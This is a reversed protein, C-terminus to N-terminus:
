KKKKGRHKLAKPPGSRKKAPHPFAASKTIKTKPRTQTEPETVLALDIENRTVDVKLISVRVPDAMRFSRKNRRGVLRYHKEDHIYYDDDITSVRVLGEVGMNKLRVFFGFPMVGSIVGDYEQGVHKAMFAVQKIKIAQREAAEAVRETDSTQKSVSDIISGVKKALPGPYPGRRLHRTLRHVLLDAYRRIPSTFHTYHLFALGFHGINDRQYVAKKMSRLMLENIFESEPSDAISELFRAFQVPRMTPSVPFSKGLREMTESFTQLTELSPKDHVRYIFPMAMRFAQIAVARNAALMFEEILRHSELRVKNVLDLVEGNENLIIKSEPLDFDLSGESFRRKSLLTALQRALFLNDAVEETIETVEKTNDFFDQVQEYSLKAKSQIVTDAMKWTLLKGKTDFDLFISHALRKRNPKLSCVDNSLAEPLMPVVLGPLYVSNGRLMAEKDLASGEEVFYAVDAIHVGLRFGGDIKIVSVADDHDKADFPDITYICENTLDLRDAMSVDSLKASAQEAEAIVDAPFQEPLGFSKIVTLMDVGPANPLGLIEVIKGEPNLYPDDWATLVAVVKQGDKAGLTESEHIYIDRHLKPNDPVIYNFLRVQKFLGVINRPTREVVKIIEGSQREGVFGRLRVMVKDGDLATFLMTPPILIDEEVGERMLFGTGNRSLSLKGVMINMEDAVGIRSRNLNVLDGSDLLSKITKRFQTYESSDIDLAKALEKIKMPHSTKSKIFELIEERNM